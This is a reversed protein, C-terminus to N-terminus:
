REQGLERKVGDTGKVAMWAILRVGDSDIVPLPEIKAAPQIGFEDLVAIIREVQEATTGGEQLAGRMRNKAKTSPVSKLRRLVEGQKQAGLHAGQQLVTTAADRFAKPLAGAMANPDTSRMWEDHAHERAVAWAEYAGRFAQDTLERQRDPQGPDASVLSVLTDDEVRVSGKEDIAVNWADDAYVNRFWVRSEDGDGMRMCFVYVNGEVKPNEFGSGVGHPLDELRQRLGVDEALANALRRRYEEGSGAASGGGENVLVEIEHAILDPDYHDRPPFASVGPLVTGTGVAADAQKLKRTLTDELHLFEDLHEAPFFVGLHIEPHQSGIRDVRGHRQVIRMPNWPLDYNIIEAAQQLNVGEALVDTTLLIDYKDEDRPNGDGDLRGATRPAFNAIAAARASQSVGGTKGSAYEGIIAPALRGKYQSLPDDDGAADIKAALREHVDRITDAYTSFIIVKRRDESSIGRPSVPTAAGAIEGLEHFLRQAKPEAGHAATVALARLQRILALDREVDERLAELHYSAVPSAQHESEEDLNEVIEDLDESEANVYDRLAGGILVYGNDLASLFAEHTATLVGLTSALARPSSELRKLLASRLLGMNTVQTGDLKASKLYASPAYRSLLLRRDDARRVTFSAAHSEEAPIHLGYTVADVLAEGPADLEYDVRRVVADPFEVAIMKGGPGTITEGRYNEKVFRRTRRVAVQDMLDFLHGPTLADPDLKQADRIYQRISPIGIAAFRADDRIFYKVLTELDILSNNVPTATLLVVKKPHKGALIIKDLAESRAASANRLNHAEDVIILAADEADDKFAGHHPHEPNMRNRIEEYSYAKVRRSLDYRELIPDWVSSKLAAPAAILVRQRREESAATIVELALYTKGLGVEDAVLVGGVEDLLRKMRKVGDAQFRTLEFRTPGPKEEDLHEGYREWLMRLFVTWPTHAAWLPEYLAALDYTEADAWCEEFWEIVQPTSGHVGSGGVNLEANRTLGALTLNSSGALFAPHTPHQSIFAKGHLFGGTFRRIEVVPEGKEDAARLWDVLRQASTTAKLDFGLADREAKLWSDHDGLASRLRQAAIADPELRIQPDPLPEAGLLIRIRPLKELEDALLLFGAPNLYATAIAASPPVALADRNVRLLRNVEDGVSMPPAIRNTAFVPLQDTM